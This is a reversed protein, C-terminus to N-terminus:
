MIRAATPQSSIRYGKGNRVSSVGVYDPGASGAGHATLSPARRRSHALQAPLSVTTDPATSRSLWAQPDGPSGRCIGRTRPRSPTSTRERGRLPSETLSVHVSDRAPECRVRGVQYALRLSTAENELSAACADRPAQNNRNMGLLEYTLSVNRKVQEVAEDNIKNLLKDVLFAIDHVFIDATALSNANSVFHHSAINGIPIPSPMSQCSPMPVQARWPHDSALVPLAPCSLHVPRERM